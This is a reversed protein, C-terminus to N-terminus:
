SVSCPWCSFDNSKLLRWLRVELHLHSHCAWSPFTKLFALVKWGIVWKGCDGLPAISTNFFQKGVQLRHFHFRYISSQSGSIWNSTCMMVRTKRGENLDVPAAWACEKNLFNSLPSHGVYVCGEGKLYYSVNGQVLVETKRFCSPRFIFNEVFIGYFWAQCYCESLTFSHLDSAGLVQSPDWLMGCCLSCWRRLTRTSLLPFQEM